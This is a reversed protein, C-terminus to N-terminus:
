INVGFERLSEVVEDISDATRFDEPDLKTMDTHVVRQAESKDVYPTFLIGKWGFNEIGTRLYSRNDDVLIVNSFGKVAEYMPPNPKVDGIQFSYIKPWSDDYIELVEPTNQSITKVIPESTNSFLGVAHGTKYIRKKLDVMEDIQAGLFYGFITKLESDSVKRKPNILKQVNRLFDTGSMDGNMIKIDIGSSIYAKKFEEPNKDKSLRAAAEYFKNFNIRILVAGLDFLVLTDRM